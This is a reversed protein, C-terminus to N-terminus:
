RLTVEQYVEKLFQTLESSLGVLVMILVASVALAFVTFSLNALTEGVSYSQLSQVKWIILLAIWVFMAIYVYQYIPGESQTLVNSVIALPVGIIIFPVLAYATGVFVDKFRGEGRYISSILYNCIVWAGVLIVFQTFIMFVNIEYTRVQNFSFSTVLESFAISVYVLFYLVIASLVSGKNEYRLATFGDIPHKLVYRVHQMQEIFSQLRVSNSQIRIPKGFRKWLKSTIVWLLAGIILITAADAFNTQIWELRIQWFSESYGVDNGAQYFLDAARGYDGKKYAAKALGQLAPTYSGNLKIVEQWLAESELYKGQMTLSNAEYVLAGFESLQFMQLVNEQDDLIFLDNKSNIEISAPNKVLGQQTINSASQGGWFFLLAGDADYQSIFKYQKDIVIFNGENDVALDILNPSLRKTARYDRERYEGYSKNEEGLSNYQSLINKGEFNLKKVQNSTVEQGGTVTYIFGNADITINNISPPLKSIENEYMERTYLARKLADILSISTENMGYFKTFNGNPDFQIAGYYGGLTVVYIYGRKDVIVKIPDYKYDAPMYKTDPAEISLLIHGENDMVVVRKNGTDAVYIKGDDAVFVGQPRNLSEGEPPIIYRLFRGTADFHIIRSNGTDAIYIEDNETVFVDQPNRMPSPEMEEPEDPSPIFLDHGIIKVPTYSPQVVRMGYGDRIYTNYMVDARASDLFTSMGFTVFVLILILKMLRRYSKM